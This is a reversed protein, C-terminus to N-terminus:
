KEILQECVILNALGSDAISRSTKTTFTVRGVRFYRRAKMKIIKMQEGSVLSDKRMLLYLENQSMRTRRDETQGACLAAQVEDFILM